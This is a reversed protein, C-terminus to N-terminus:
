QPGKITGSDRALKKEGCGTVMAVRNFGQSTLTLNCWSLHSLIQLSVWRHIQRQESMGTVVYHLHAFRTDFVLYILWNFSLSSLSFSWPYLLPLFLLVFCPAKDSFLTLLAIITNIVSVVVM